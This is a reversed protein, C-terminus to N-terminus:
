FSVTMLPKQCVKILDVSNFRKAMLGESLTEITADILKPYEALVNFDTQAGTSISDLVLQSPIPCWGKISAKGFAGVTFSLLVTAVLIVAM